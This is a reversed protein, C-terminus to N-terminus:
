LTFRLAYEKSYTRIQDRRHQTDIGLSQAIGLVRKLPDPEKLSKEENPLLPGMDQVVKGGKFDPDEVVYERMLRGGSYYVFDFSEDVDGVSCTFIDHKRALTQIGEFRAPTHRGHWLTYFWDDAVHTWQKDETVFVCLKGTPESDRVFGHIGLQHLLEIDDYQGACRIFIFYPSRLTFLQEM